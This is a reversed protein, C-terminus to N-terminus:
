KTQNFFLLFFLIAGDGGGGGSCGFTTAWLELLSFTEEL